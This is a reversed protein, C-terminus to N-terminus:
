RRKSKNKSRKTGGGGGSMKNISPVIPDPYSFQGPLTGPPATLPKEAELLPKEAETSPKGAELLLNEAQPQELPQVADPQADTVTPLDNNQQEPSVLDNSTTANNEPNGDIHTINDGQNDTNTQLTDVKSSDFKPPNEDNQEQYSDVVPQDNTVDKESSSQPSDGDKFPQQKYFSTAMWIVIIAVLCGIFYYADQLLSAVIAYVISFAVSYYNMYTYINSAMSTGLTFPTQGKKDMKLIGSIKLPIYLSYLPVCILTLLFWSIMPLITILCIFPLIFAYLILFCISKIVTFANGDQNNDTNTKVKNFFSTIDCQVSAGYISKFWAFITYFINSILFMILFIPFVIFSTMLLFGPSTIGYVFQFFTEIFHLNWEISTTFISVMEIAVINWYTKTDVNENAKEHHEVIDVIKRLWSSNFIDETADKDFDVSQKVRTQKGKDDKSVYFDHWDVPKPNIEASTPKIISVYISLINSAALVCYYSSLLGSIMFWSMIIIASLNVKIVNKIYEKKDVPEVKTSTVM